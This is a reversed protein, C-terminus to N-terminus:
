PSHFHGAAARDTLWLLRGSVPAVRSAPFLESGVERNRISALPAAKTEGTVLFVVQKANNIVQGTLSIRKQGSDPHTAVVCHAGSDWLHIQQPFISATHGDDGMGLVLLDFQPVLRSEPLHDGLVGAYRLAEAEPDNEGRIRYIHSPAVPVRDLLHRRTMGYNSQPDAPPVCREDGWFFCLEEWPLRRTYEKAMLDFWVQPTSGGSLAINRFGEERCWRELLDSLARAVETKTDYIEIDM